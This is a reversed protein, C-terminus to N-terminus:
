KSRKLKMIEQKLGVIEEKLKQTEAELQQIAAELQQIKGEQLQLLSSVPAAAQMKMADLMSKDFFKIVEPM